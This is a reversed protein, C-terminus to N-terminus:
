NPDTESKKILSDNTPADGPRGDSGPGCDVFARVSDSTWEAPAWRSHEPCM